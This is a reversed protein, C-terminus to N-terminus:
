DRATVPPRERHIAYVGRRTFLYALLWRPKGWLFEMIWTREEDGLEDALWPLLGVMVEADERLAHPLLQSLSSEVEDVCNIRRRQVFTHLRGGRVWPGAGPTHMHKEIFRVVNEKKEFPPGQLTHLQPLTPAELLCAILAQDGEEGARPRCRIVTYGTRGLHNEVNRALRKVQGWLNDPAQPKALKIRILLTNQSYPEMTSALRKLELPDLPPLFFYYISPKTLYLHASISFEAMRDLSLAAAVNRQPDVPDVVIMPKDGFRRVIARHDGNYHNAPDLIVPPRWSAANRLLSRFGGYHITLLELLYGSFGEVAIEAGYLGLNRAFQKSLRIEDRLSPDRARSRVYETHLPTRDVATLPRGPESQELAPVIEVEVGERRIVLYPHESYRTTPNHGSFWQLLQPFLTERLFERGRDRPLILFVDVEPSTRLWTDKAYSGEVRVRAGPERTEIFRGLERLVWNLIRGVKERDEPRPRIERLVEREIRSAEEEVYPDM